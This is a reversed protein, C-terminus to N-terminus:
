RKAKRRIADRISAQLAEAEGRLAEPSKKTEETVVVEPEEVVEKPEEDNMLLVGIVLLPSLVFLITGLVVAAAGFVVMLFPYWFCDTTKYRRSKVLEM